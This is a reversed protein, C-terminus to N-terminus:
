IILRMDPNFLEHGAEKFDSWNIHYTVLRDHFAKHFCIFIASKCYISLTPWQDRQLVEASAM